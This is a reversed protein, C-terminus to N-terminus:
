LTQALACLEEISLNEARRTGDIGATELWEAPNKVLQKLSARLMKRRQGFAAQTVAELKEIDVNAVPRARPVLQVIASTVKPPPVFVSPAVDFVIRTQARWNALVGLRGYHKDGPPAVIREGVEKQFMLTLSDWGPPTQKLWSVLLPTALNYPLNSVIQYPAPTIDAPSIELADGFIIELRGPYVAAIERLPAEFRRDMEIVTVKGAGEMLLARTLGGPGPGVEIVHSDPSVGATRAIRRTVNLDLIFNQGLSKDAWLDHRNIVDRLPPLPDLDGPM